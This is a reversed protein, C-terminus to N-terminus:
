EEEKIRKELSDEDEIQIVADDPNEFVDEELLVTESDEIGDIKEDGLPKEIDAEKAMKEAELVKAKAEDIAKQAAARKESVDAYLAAFSEKSYKYNKYAGEPDRSVYCADGDKLKDSYAKYDDKRSIQARVSDANKKEEVAAKREADAMKKYSVFFVAYYSDYMESAKGLLESGSASEALMQDFASSADEGKKYSAADNEALGESDIRNKLKRADAAKALADYKKVIESLEASHDKGDSADKIGKLAKDNADFADKYFDSAGCAVANERSKDAAGMLDSNDVNEEIVVPEESKNEDKEEDEVVLGLQDDEMVGAGKDTTKCSAFILALSLIALLSKKM